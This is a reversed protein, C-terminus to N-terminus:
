STPTTRRRRSRILMWGLSFFMIFWAVMSAVNAVRVYGPEVFRVAVRSAEAPIQVTLVGNSDPMTDVAAGNVTAQWRPYFWTNVTAQAALGPDIIFERDTPASRVVTIERGEISVDKKQGFAESKAWVPWWCDCGTSDTFTSIDVNLKERAVYVPTKVILVALFALSALAVSAAAAVGRMRGIKMQDNAFVLGAAGLVAAALSVITLWRWPFQVKQLVPISDWLPKSLPTTLLAAVVFVATLPSCRRRLDPSAALLVAAPLAVLLTVFLMLDAFWLNLFDEGLNVWHSPVFLFNTRYDWTTSFYRETNHTIWGLETIWRSWYFSTLLATLVGSLALSAVQRALDTKRLSAVAYVTMAMGGILTLPLHTLFLLSVAVALKLATKAAPERLTRHLYLFCWPLAATGFFEALLFNNYIENLHYPIFTYLAAAILARREDFLERAWLYVGLAGTFFVLTLAILTTAYWDGTVARLGALVYYTLPPYFRLGYDGFGHNTDPAFSSYIEGRALSNYVTWAFQYHQSQDNGSPIGFLFIPLMAVVAFM